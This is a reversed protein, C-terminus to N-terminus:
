ATEAGSASTLDALKVRWEALSEALLRAFRPATALSTRRHAGEYHAVM